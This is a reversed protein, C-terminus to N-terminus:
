EPVLDGVAIAYGTTQLVVMNGEQVVNTTTDADVAVPADWETLNRVFWTNGTVLVDKAMSVVAQGARYTEGSSPRIPSVSLDSPGTYVLNNAFLARSVSSVDWLRGPVNRFRNGSVEVDSHLRWTAGFDGSAEQGDIRLAGLDQGTGQKDCREFTNNTVLVEAAGTGEGWWASARVALCAMHVHEFRSDRVVTSSSQILMGRARSHHVYANRVIVNAARYRSQSVVLSSALASFRSPLDRNLDLVWNAVNDYQVNTVRAYFNTPTFDANYFAVEDGIRYTIRWTPSDTVRIRRAAPITFGKSSTPNHINVADDGGWSFEYDIIKIYGGTKHVFIGDATSSVPYLQKGSSSPNATSWPQREVKIGEFQLFSTDDGLTFCKGPVGRFTIGSFTCHNCSRGFFGHVEYVLHRLLHKAGVRPLPSFSRTFTLVLTDSPGGDAAIPIVDAVDAVPANVPFTATASGSMFFERSNRTGMALTDPDLETLVQYDFHTTTNVQAYDDFRLTWQTSTAALVTVVSGLAWRDWDWHVAFNSFRCRLCGMIYFLPPSQGSAQNVISTRSFLFTNGGGDLEFDTLWVFLLSNTSQFRYTGPVDFVVKCPTGGNSCNRAAANLAVTNDAASPSAGFRSASWVRVAARPPDVAFDETQAAAAAAGALLAAAFLLAAAVRRRGRARPCERPIM